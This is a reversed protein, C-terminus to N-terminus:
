IYLLSPQAPSGDGSAPQFRWTLACPRRAPAGAGACAAWGLCGAAAWPSGPHDGPCSGPVQRQEVTAPGACQLTFSYGWSEPSPLAGMGGMGRHHYRAVRLFGAAGGGGWCCCCATQEGGLARGQRQVQGTRPVIGPVSHACFPRFTIMPPAMPCPHARAMPLSVRRLCLAFGCPAAWAARLPVFSRAAVSLCACLMGIFRAAPPRAAAPPQGREHTCPWAGAARCTGQAGGAAAGGPGGGALCEERRRAAFM